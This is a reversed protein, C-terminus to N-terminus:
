SAIVVSRGGMMGAEPQTQVALQTKAAWRVFGDGSDAAYISGDNSGFYVVGSSVLPTGVVWNRTRVDWVEGGTAIFYAHMKDDLAGVYVINGDIIPRSLWFAGEALQAKWPTMGTESQRILQPGIGYIVFDAGAAPASLVSDNYSAIKTRVTGDKELIFVGSNATVFIEKANVAIGYIRSVNYASVNLNSEWTKAGNAGLKLVKGASTSVYIANDAIILENPRKGVSTQWRRVGTSPDLGYVNGDDSAVVVAQQFIVPKGSVAGDSTFEWVLSANSVALVLLLLLAYRM